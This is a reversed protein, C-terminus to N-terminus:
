EVESLIERVLNGYAQGFNEITKNSLDGVVEAAGLALTRNKARQRRRM